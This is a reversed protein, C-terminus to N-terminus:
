EAAPRLRVPAFTYAAGDCPLAAGAPLETEPCDGSEAALFSFITEDGAAGAIATSPSLRSIPERRMRRIPISAGSYSWNQLLVIPFKIWASLQCSIM